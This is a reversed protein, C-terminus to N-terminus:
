IVFSDCRGPRTPGEAPALQGGKFSHLSVCVQLSHHSTVRSKFLHIVRSSKLAEVWQFKYLSELSEVRSSEVLFKSWIVRSSGFIVRSTVLRTYLNWIILTDDTVLQEVALTPRDTDVLYQNATKYKSSNTELLPYIWHSGKTM